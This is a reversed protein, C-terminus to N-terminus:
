RLRPNFRRRQENKEQLVASRSFNLELVREREKESRRERDRTEGETKKRLQAPEANPEQRHSTNHAEM